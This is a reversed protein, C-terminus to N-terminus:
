PLGPGLCVVQAQPRKFPTSCQKQVSNTAKQFPTTLAPSKIVSSLRTYAALVHKPLFIAVGWEATFTGFTESSSCLMRRTLEKPTSETGYDGTANESAASM